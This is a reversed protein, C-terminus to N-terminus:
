SDKELNDGQTIPKGDETSINAPTDTSMPLPKTSKESPSQLERNEVAVGMWELLRQFNKASGEPLTLEEDFNQTYLIGAIHRLQAITGRKVEVETLGLVESLINRIRHKGLIADIANKQLSELGEGGCKKNTCVMQRGEADKYVKKCLPCICDTNYLDYVIDGITRSLKEAKGETLPYLDMVKTGLMIPKKQWEPNLIELEKPIIRKEEM